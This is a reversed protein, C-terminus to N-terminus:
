TDIWRETRHARDKVDLVADGFERAYCRAALPDHRHRDAIRRIIEVYRIDQGLLTPWGPLLEVCRRRVIRNEDTRNPAEPTVAQREDRDGVGLREPTSADGAVRDRRHCRQHDFLVSGSLRSSYKDFALHLWQRFQDPKPLEESERPRVPGPGQADRHLSIMGVAGGAHEFFVADRVLHYPGVLIGVAVAGQRHPRCEREARVPLRRAVSRETREDLRPRAPKALGCVLWNM